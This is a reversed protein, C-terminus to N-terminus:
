RPARLDFLVTDEAVEKSHYGKLLHNKLEADTKSIYTVMVTSSPYDGLAKNFDAISNFPGVIDRRAYYAIQPWMGFESSPSSSLVVEGPAAMAALSQGLISQDYSINKYLQDVQYYTAPAVLMVAVIAPLLSLKRPLRSAIFDFTIGASLAVPLLFYYLWYSHIMAAQKFIVVHLTAMAFLGLLLSASSLGEDDKAVYLAILPGTFSTVLLPTTFFFAGWPFLRDILTHMAIVTNPDQDAKLNSRAFFSDLLDKLYVRGFWRLQLFLVGLTAIGTLIPLVAPLEKRKVFLLYHLGLIPILYYASWDTIGGLFVSACLVALYQRDGGIWRLYSLITLLMFFTVLPEFCVMHGYYLFMPNLVFIVAAYLGMRRNWLRESILFVLPISALSFFIPVLRASWESEGFISFSLAIILALLSPHNVYFGLNEPSVPTLSITQGTVNGFKAQILGYELFNRAFGSFVAGNFGEHGMSWPLTIGHSLAFAAFVFVIALGAKYGHDKISVKLM